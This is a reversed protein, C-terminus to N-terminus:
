EITEGQRSVTEECDSEAKPHADQLRNTIAPYKPSVLRVAFNVAAQDVLYVTDVWGHMSVLHNLVRRDFGEVHLDLRTSHNIQQQIVMMREVQKVIEYSKEWHQSRQTLTMAKYLQAGVKFFSM